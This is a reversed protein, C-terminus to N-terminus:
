DDPGDEFVDHVDPATPRVGERLWQQESTERRVDSILRDVLPPKGVAAALAQERKALQWLTANLQRRLRRRKRSGAALGVGLMVVGVACIVIVNQFVTV